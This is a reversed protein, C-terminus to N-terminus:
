PGRHPSSLPSIGAVPNGNVNDIVKDQSLRNAASKLDLAVVSGNLAGVSDGGRCRALCGERCPGAAHGGPDRGPQNRRRPGLGGSPASRFSM